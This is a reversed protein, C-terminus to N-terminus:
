ASWPCASVQLFPQLPCSCRLAQLIWYRRAPIGQVFEQPLHREYALGGDRGGAHVLLEPTCEQLWRNEESFAAARYPQLQTFDCTVGTFTM